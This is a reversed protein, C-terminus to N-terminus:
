NYLTGNKGKRLTLFSGVFKPVKTNIVFRAIFSEILQYFSEITAVPLRAFWKLRLDGLSSPFVRCMLPDLHDGFAMMQRVHSIHSRPDSKGDYLKFRSLTSKDPPDMEEIDKFFPTQYRSIPERPM